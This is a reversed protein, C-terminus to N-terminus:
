YLGDVCAFNRADDTSGRGQWRAVQPYPCLPRERLPRMSGPEFLPKLDNAYKGAIIAQPAIGHEVWKEIAATVSHGPDSADGPTLQGFVNPGPGGVVHGVGPAM